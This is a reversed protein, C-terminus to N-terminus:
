APVTWEVTRRWPKLLDFRSFRFVREDIVVQVAGVDRAALAALAPALWNSEFPEGGRVVVVTDRDPAPELAAFSAGPDVLSEGAARWLGQLWGDSGYGRPWAPAPRPVGQRLAGSGGGWLWLATVPPAGRRRLAQALPHEHLWMEIETGLRRLTRAGEGAPLWPGIDAGLLRAPDHTRAQAADLGALLFGEAGVPQLALQAVPSGAGGSQAAPAGAGGLRAAFDAALMAAEQATLAVCGEPALRVHDLAALLNVPTAFWLGGAPAGAPAALQAPPQQALDARGLRRALWGRWDGHAVPAPRARALTRTLAARDTSSPAPLILVLEPVIAYRVWTM